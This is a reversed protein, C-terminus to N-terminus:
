ALERLRRRAADGTALFAVIGALVPVALPIMWGAGEFRLGTLLGGEVAGSPLLFLVLMAPLLFIMFIRKNRKRIYAM